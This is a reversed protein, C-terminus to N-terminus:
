KKSLYAELQATKLDRGLITGDAGVLLNGPVYRVGLQRALAGSFGRGECVVPVSISDRRVLERCKQPSYDLSVAVTRFNPGFARQLRKLELFAARSDPQWSAIFLFLLKQGAFDSRRLVRGDLSTASFAALPRGVGNELQPRLRARLAEVTGSHPQRKELLDLLPLAEKANPTEVDAFYQMFVATGDPTAANDRVYMAAALHRNGGPKTAAALRFKTLRENADSGAVDTEGLKEADASFELTKGPEGIIYTRVYNPYLLTLVEPEQLTREYTFKGGVVKVTDIGNFSPGEAFVYFEADDLHKFKGKLRMRDKGPGCAALLLTLACLLIHLNRM